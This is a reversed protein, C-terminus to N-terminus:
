EVACTPEPVINPAWMFFVAIISSSAVSITTNFAHRTVDGGGGVGVGVGGGGGSTVPDGVGVGFTIETTPM